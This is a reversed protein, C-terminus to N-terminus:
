APRGVINGALKVSGRLGVGFAHAALSLAALCACVFLWPLTPDYFVKYGIWGRLEDFRLTGAALTLSEGPQLDVRHDNANVTLVADISDSDLRWAKDKRLPTDLHLWLQVDPGQPPQWRNEQKWDFLPYSPMHIAGTVPSGGVPTWTLVPAYGKNHTVYFRYGDIVLPQDERVVEAARARLVRSHTRSRNVGPAYDVTFGRQDFQVNQFARRHLPGARVIDVADAAFPAGTLLEVRGELHFLRGWAALALLALLSAHFALLAPESRLRPHTVMAALLNLTLGGLPIALTWAAVDTLEASALAWVGLVAFGWLMLTPSALFLLARKM